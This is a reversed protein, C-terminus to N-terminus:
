PKGIERINSIGPYRSDSKLNGPDRSNGPIKSARCFRSFYQLFHESFMNMNIVTYVTYLVTIDVSRGSSEISFGSM